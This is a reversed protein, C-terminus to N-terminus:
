RGAPGYRPAPFMSASRCQHPRWCAFPTQIRRACCPGAAFGDVLITDGGAAASTHCHLLQVTPEPDRYPNDTHPSLALGTSALHSPAAEVRVDFVRGYNTERVYGFCGAVTAVMGARCPVGRILTFGDRLM